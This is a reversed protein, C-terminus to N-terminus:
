WGRRRRAAALSAAGLLAVTGTAPIFGEYNHRRIEADMVSVSDVVVSGNIGGGLVQLDADPALLAGNFTNNTKVQTAGIFNWIIKSSNNQNAFGGTLNPPAILDVIGTGNAIFNIVVSDASGFNLNVGGFADFQAQTVTYIAVLEGGFNTPVANFNGGPDISGNASLTSLYSSIASAEAMAASVAAPITPDSIISGGGNTNAIGLVSGAIRLDGGNNIQVNIGAGIDGGVALGPGNSATVLHTSYNSTGLVSGGILASGDVESTTVLDNRVILNWESLVSASAIGSCLAVACAGVPVSAINM